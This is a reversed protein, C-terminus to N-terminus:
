GPQFRSRRARRRGRHVKPRGAIALLGGAM